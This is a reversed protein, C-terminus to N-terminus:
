AAEGDDDDEDGGDDPEVRWVEAGLIQPKDTPDLEVLLPMVDPAAEGGRKGFAGIGRVVGTRAPGKGGRLEVRDGVAVGPNDRPVGPVLVWGRGRVNFADFVRFLWRAPM